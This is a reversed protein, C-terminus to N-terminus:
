ALVEFVQKLRNEIMIFDLARYYMSTEIQTVCHIHKDMNWPKCRPIYVKLM